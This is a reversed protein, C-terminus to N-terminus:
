LFFLLLDLIVSNQHLVCSYLGLLSLMLGALFNCIHLNCIFSKVLVKESRMRSATKCSCFFLYIFACVCVPGTHRGGTHPPCSHTDTHTPVAMDGGTLHLRVPLCAPPRSPTLLWVGTVVCWVDPLRMGCHGCWPFM